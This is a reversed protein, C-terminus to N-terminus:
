RGARKPNPTKALDFTKKIRKGGTGASLLSLASLGRRIAAALQKDTLHANEDIIVRLAGLVSAAVIRHEAGPEQEARAAIFAAVTSDFERFAAFQLAAIKPHTLAARRSIEVMAMDPTGALAQAAFLESLLPLLEGEGTLFAEIADEPFPPPPLVFAAEKYPFYNFFTRQSIGARECIAEVSIADIGLEAALELASRRVLKDTEQRRKQRLDVKLELCVIHLSQM